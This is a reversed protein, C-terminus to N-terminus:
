IPHIATLTPDLDDIVRDLDAFTGSAGQSTVRAGRGLGYALLAGFLTM